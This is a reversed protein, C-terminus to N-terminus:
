VETMEKEELRGIRLVDNSQLDTLVKAISYVDEDAASAKVNSYTKIQTIEKGNSDAGLSYTIRLKSDLPNVNVAM